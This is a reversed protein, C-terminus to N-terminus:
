KGAAAYQREFTRILAVGADSVTHVSYAPLTKMLYSEILGRRRLGDLRKYMQGRSLDPFADRLGATPIAATFRKIHVLLLLDQLTLSLNKEPDM